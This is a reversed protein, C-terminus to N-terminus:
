LELQMAQRLQLDLAGLPEDLVEGNAPNLVKDTAGSLAARWEGGIFNQKAM